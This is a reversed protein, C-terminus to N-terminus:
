ADVVYRRWSEGVIRYSADIQVLLGRSALEVALRRPPGSLSAKGLGGAARRLLEQEAESCHSWWSEYHPWMLQDLDDQLNELPTGRWLLDGAGQLAQPFGGAQERVLASAERDMGLALLNAATSSDLQGVWVKTADNLFASTRGSHRFAQHLDQHAVSIWILQGKQGLTRLQDLVGDDFRYKPATLATAEDVLLVASGLLELQREISRGRLEKIVEDRGLQKAATKVFEEASRGALGQANLRAVPRDQWLPAHREAWALLSTKGMRHEGLIQLSQGQRLAQEIQRCGADRGFFDDDHVIPPGVIFPSCEMAAAQPPEGVKGIFRKRLHPYDALLQCLETAGWSPVIELRGGARQRLARDTRDSIDCTAVLQYRDAAPEPSDIVVKDLEAKAATPGFDRVRKCQTICQRGEPDISSLDVGRDHGGAGTHRVRTHGEARLLAFCFQEFYKPELSQLRFLIWQQDSEPM